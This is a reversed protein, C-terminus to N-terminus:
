RPNLQKVYDLSAARGLNAILDVVSLFPVFNKSNFQSYPVSLFNQYSLQIGSKDFLNEQEIYDRSGLPSYYHDAQLHKCIEILRASKRGEISMKSSRHFVTTIGLYSCFIIILEINLEALTAQKGHEIVPLILDLIEVGFPAKGYTIKLSQVHKKRWSTAAISAYQISSMRDANLDVTIFTASQNILIKNRVHWSSKELKADDLFVFEHSKEILEFFGPWPLYTPQMIAITKKM